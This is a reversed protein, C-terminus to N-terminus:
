MQESAACAEGQVMVASGARRRALRVARSMQYEWVVSDRGTRGTGGGALRQQKEVAFAGYKRKRLHRLQASISAEGFHTLRSLEKLTLWTDCQAASLMVDRLVDRQTRLVVRMSGRRQSRRM